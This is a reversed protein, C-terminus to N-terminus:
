IRSWGKAPIWLAKFEKMNHVTDVIPSLFYDLREVIKSFDDLESSTMNERNIFSHWQRQKEDSFSQSFLISLNAPLPTSRNKFTTKIALQLISGDIAAENTLLWVDYFDKMRSNISGLFVMAQFKEAILTEWSYASLDPAPMDLITPYEVSIAPPVLVDSFGIDLQMPVRATALNGTFRLRIGQNEARDQTVSGSISNADFLM